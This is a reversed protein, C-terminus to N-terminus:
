NGKQDGSERHTANKVWRSPVSFFASAEPPGGIVIQSAWFPFPPDHPTSPVKLTRIVGDELLVLDTFTGGTDVALLPTSAESPSKSM